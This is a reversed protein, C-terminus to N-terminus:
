QMFEAGNITNGFKFCPIEKEKLFTEIKEFYDLNVERENAKSEALSKMYKVHHEYCVKGAHLFKRYKIVSEKSNQNEVGKVHSFANM